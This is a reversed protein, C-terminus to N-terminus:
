EHKGKPKPKRPGRKNRNGGSPAANSPTAVPAQAARGSRNQGQGKGRSGSGSRSPSSDTSASGRRPRQGSEAPKNPAYSRRSPPNEDHDVHVPAEVVAVDKRGFARGIAKAARGFMGPAKAEAVPKEAAFLARGCRRLQLGQRGGAASSGCCAHAGTPFRDQSRGPQCAAGARACSRRSSVAHRHARGEATQPDCRLPLLRQRAPQYTGPRLGQIREAGRVPRVLHRRHGRWRVRQRYAKGDM